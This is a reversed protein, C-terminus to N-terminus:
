YREDGRVGFLAGLRGLAGGRPPMRGGRMLSALMEAEQEEASTYSTRMMLRRILHPQLGTLLGALEGGLGEGEGDIDGFGVRHHAVLMHAIEHLIIHERHLPATRAEYFVFDADDTGVWLGCAGAHAVQQPLEKLVLPRDRLAEMWRVTSDLSYPQPVGLDYLINQCRARLHAYEAATTM